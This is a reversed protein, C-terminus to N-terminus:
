LRSEVLTWKLCLEHLSYLNELVIIYINQVRVGEVVIKNHLNLICKNNLFKVNFGRDCLQNINLLTQKLGDMLLVNKVSLNKICIIGIKVEDCPTNDGLTVKWWRRLDLSIFKRKHEMIYRWTGCVKALNQNSSLKYFM